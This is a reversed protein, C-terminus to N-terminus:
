LVRRSGGAAAYNCHKGLFRHPAEPKGVWWSELPKEAELEFGIGEMAWSEAAIDVIHVKRIGPRISLLIGPLLPYSLILSMSAHFMRGLTRVQKGSIM